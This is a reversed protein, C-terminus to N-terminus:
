PSIDSGRGIEPLEFEGVELKLEPGPEDRNGLSAAAQTGVRSRRQGGQPPQPHLSPPRPSVSVLWPPHAQSRGPSLARQSGSSRQSSPRESGEVVDEMGSFCPRSSSLSPSPFAFSLVSSRVAKKDNLRWTMDSEKHGWPSCCALGGQGKGDGLAQEFEHGNLRHHWEVM